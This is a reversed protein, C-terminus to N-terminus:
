FTPPKHQRLWAELKYHDAATLPLQPEGDFDADLLSVQHAIFKRVQWAALPALQHMRRANRRATIRTQQTRMHNYTVAKCGHGM